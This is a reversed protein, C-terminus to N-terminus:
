VRKKLLSKQNEFFGYVNLTNFPRRLYINGFGPIQSIIMNYIPMIGCHSLVIVHCFLLYNGLSAFNIGFICPSKFVNKCGIFKPLIRKVFSAAIGFLKGCEYTVKTVTRLHEIIKQLQAIFHVYLKCAKCLVTHTFRVLVGAVTKILAHLTTKHVKIHLDCACWTEWSRLDQCHRVATDFFEHVLHRLQTKILTHEILHELLLIM